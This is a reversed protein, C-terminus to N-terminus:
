RFKGFFRGMKSNALKILNKDINLFLCIGDLNKPHGSAQFAKVLKQTMQNVVFQSFSQANTKLDPLLVMELDKIANKVLLANASEKKLLLLEKLEDTGNKLVHNQITKKLAIVSIESLEDFKSDSINFQQITEQKLQERAKSFDFQQM